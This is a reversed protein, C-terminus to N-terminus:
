GPLVDSMFNKMKLLNGQLRQQYILSYTLVSTVYKRTEKFPITEVWIDAPVPKVTPLWKVIRNPGANYAATALAVHGNFRNLLKRFYYSGYRINTDPNFLSYESQWDEDLEGAIQRATGPMLQMLGKAGVPSQANKDLMSEQRMLGLVLAPDLNQLDANHQVEPWYSIPFRISLDDWYDAKVLTRIAIQDMQWHQALKAALLLREKGLKKVAFWWQRNFEAERKLVNLERAMKFDTENALAELQNEVSLVPNDSLRYPKNTTDAALFGYFSRDEAVKNYRLQADPIRGTLELTRAQWYQWRPEGQEEPTLGALATAVHQWNQEFLASRIKWERVETDTSSLLSLRNYARSDRKQALALALKREVQQATQDNIAFLPRRSDWIILALDLDSKAMRDIGHAFILGILRDNGSLFENDQILDPNKHVQLWIDAFKQDPKGLLSRVFEALVVNDQKLALAFRQWLLDPTMMPSIVLASLLADCQKPRSEGSLWLHKAENLASQQNGTQYNAWYFLCQTAVDDPDAQYHQIIETWREQGALYDLWQDRLLDAYRTERYVSLFALIPATQQLNNKLRQYQLYPYLPYDKLGASLALFRDGSGEALLKEARLFDMRQQNLTDGLVAGPLLVLGCWLLSRYLSKKSM